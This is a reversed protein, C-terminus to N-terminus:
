DRRRRAILLGGLGLLALSGPEPVATGTISINDFRGEADITGFGFHVENDNFTYGTLTMPGKATSGDTWSFSFTGTAATWSFSANYWVGTSISYTNNGDGNFLKDSDTNGTADYISARRGFTARKLDTRFHDGASTTLGSDVDGVYFSLNDYFASGDLIFDFSGSFDSNADFGAGANFIYGNGAAVELGNGPNGTAATTLGSGVTNWGTPLAPPTASEFNETITAAHVSGVLMASATLATLLTKTHTKM